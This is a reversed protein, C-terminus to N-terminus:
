LWSYSLCLLRVSKKMMLYNRTYLFSIFYFHLHWLLVQLDWTIQYFFPRRGSSMQGADSSSTSIKQVPPSPSLVISKYVFNLLSAQLFSFSLLDLLHFTFLHVQLLQYLGSGKLGHWLSYLNKGPVSSLWHFNPFKLTRSYVMKLSDSHNCLFSSLLKQIVLQFEIM